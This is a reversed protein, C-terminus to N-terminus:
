PTWIPFGGRAFTARITYLSNVAFIFRLGHFDFDDQLLFRLLSLSLLDVVFDRLVRLVRRHGLHEKQQAWCFERGKRADGSFSTMGTPRLVSRSLLESM